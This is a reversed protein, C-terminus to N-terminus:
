MKYIWTCDEPLNLPNKRPWKVGKTDVAPVPEISSPKVEPRLIDERTFQIEVGLPARWIVTDSSAKVIVQPECENCTCILGAKKMQKLVKRCAKALKPHGDHRAISELYEVTSVVDWGDDEIEIHGDSMKKRGQHLVTFMV